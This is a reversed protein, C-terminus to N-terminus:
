RCEQQKRNRIIISMTNMSRQTGTRVICRFRKPVQELSVADTFIKGTEMADALMTKSAEIMGSNFLIRFYM